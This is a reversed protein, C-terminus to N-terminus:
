QDLLATLFDDLTRARELRPLLEPTGLARVTSDFISMFRERDERRVAIMLVVRIVPGGWRVGARSTLVCFATRRADMEIAHPIAFREFFCTSGAAERSRVSAGFEPGVAGAAELRACLEDIVEDRKRVSAGDDRVFLEESFFPRTSRLQALRGSRARHRLAEGIALLDDSLLLPSILVHPVPLGRLPRTTVVLDVSGARAEDLAEAARTFVCISARDGFHMVLQDRLARDVSRYTTSLLAVRPRDDALEGVVLGLHICLFGLESEDVTVDLRESLAGAVVQSVEFLFPCSRKVGELLGDDAVSQGDSRRVLQDVHLVLGRLAPGDEVSIGYPALADRVVDEVRADREVHRSRTERPQTPRMWGVLLSAVQSVDEVCARIPWRHAYSACVATAVRLEVNNKEGGGEVRSLGSPCRMRFLAIAVSTALGTEHGPEVYRNERRACRGIVDRVFGLDLLESVPEVPGGASPGGTAEDVVLRSLLRRRADDDGTLRIRGRTRALALGQRSARERVEGLVREVATRSMFLLEGLDEATPGEEGTVLNRALVRLVVDAPDSPTAGRDLGDHGVASDGPNRHLRYGRNSSEIRAGGGNIRAVEAQVTRVSVGLEQALESGTLPGASSALLSVIRQQRESLLAM